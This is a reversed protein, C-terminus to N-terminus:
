AARRQVIPVLGAWPSPGQKRLARKLYTRRSSLRQKHRRHEGGYDPRQADPQDGLSWVMSERGRGPTTVYRAVYVLRHARLLLLSAHTADHTRGILRALDATILEEHVSLTLLIARQTAGSLKAVM